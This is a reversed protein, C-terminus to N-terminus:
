NADPLDPLALLEEIADVPARSARMEQLSTAEHKQLFERMGRPNRLVASAAWRRRAVNVIVPM